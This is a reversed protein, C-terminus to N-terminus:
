GEATLSCHSSVICYLHHASCGQSANRVSGDIQAGLCDCPGVASIVVMYTSTRLYARAKAHIRLVYM